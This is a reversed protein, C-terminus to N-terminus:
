ARQPLEASFKFVLYIMLLASVLVGVSAIGLIPGLVAEPLVGGYLLLLGTFMSIAAIQHLVFQAQSIRRDPQHLWLKHIIGYIFSLVFGVLLIHAHAVFQSHNQSAGMYIGICMGFAVYALSCILYKKDFNM